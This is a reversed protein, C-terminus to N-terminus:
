APLEVDPLGPEVGEFSLPDALYERVTRVMGAIGYGDVWRHDITATLPLMKGIVIKGDRVVPKEDVEGVVVIVPVRYLPSLPSWGEKVGFMGVSSVMVGGFAERPLGMGAMDIGLDSTLFAVFRLIPRLIRYPLKTLLTKGREVDVQEGRRMAGAGLRVEEEIEVLSKTHADVVRVGSLDQGAGTSVIVFVSAHERPVFRGFRLRTNISPNEHLARALARAVVHTITVHAETRARLTEIADLIPEADVEMRGYIQPDKPWTWVVTALRRWGTTRM